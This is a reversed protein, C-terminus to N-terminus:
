DSFPLYFNSHKLAIKQLAGKKLPYKPSHQVKYQLIKFYFREQQLGLSNFPSLSWFHFGSLYKLLVPPMRKNFIAGFIDNREHLTVVQTLPKAKQFFILNKKDFAFHVQNKERLTFNYSLDYGKQPVILGRVVICTIAIM